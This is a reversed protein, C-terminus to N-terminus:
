HQLCTGFTKTGVNTRYISSICSRSHPFGRARTSPSIYRLLSGATTLTGPTCLSWSSASILPGSPPHVNLAAPNLFSISRSTAPPIILFLRSPTVGSSVLLSNILHSSVSFPKSLAPVASLPLCLLLCAPTCHACCCSLTGPVCLM